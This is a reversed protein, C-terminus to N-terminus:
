VGDVELRCDAQRSISLRMARWSEDRPCTMLHFVMGYGIVDSTLEETEWVIKVMAPLTDKAVTTWRRMQAPEEQTIEGCMSEWLRCSSRVRPILSRM